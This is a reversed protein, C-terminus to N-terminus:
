NIILLLFIVAFALLGPVERLSHLIGIEVGSFAVRELGFNNILAMWTFFSIPIAVAMLSLLFKPNRWNSYFFKYLKM